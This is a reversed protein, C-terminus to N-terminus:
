VGGLGRQGFGGQGLGAVQAGTLLQRLQKHYAAAQEFRLGLDLAAGRWQQNSISRRWRFTQPFRLAGQGQTGVDLQSLAAKIFGL